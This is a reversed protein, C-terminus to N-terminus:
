QLTDFCIYSMKKGTDLEIHSGACFFVFKVKCLVVM